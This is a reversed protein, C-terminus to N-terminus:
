YILSHDSTTVVEIVENNTPVRGHQKTFIIVAKFFTPLYILISM